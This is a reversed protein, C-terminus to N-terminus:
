LVVGRVTRSLKAVGEIWNNPENYLEFYRVRHRYRSVISTWNTVLATRLSADRAAREELGLTEAHLLLYPQIGERQYRDLLADYQRMVSEDLSGPNSVSATVRVNLRVCHPHIAVVADVASADISGYYSPGNICVARRLGLAVSQTNTPLEDDPPAAGVCALATALTAAVFWWVKQAFLTTVSTGNYENHKM